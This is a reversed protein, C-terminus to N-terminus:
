RDDGVDREFYGGLIFYRERDTTTEALKFARQYHPAAEEPRGLDSYGHALLIHASAFDPDEAVARELLEVVQGWKM